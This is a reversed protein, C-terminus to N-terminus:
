QGLQMSRRAASDLASGILGKFGANALTGIAHETTGGPTQVEQCIQSVTKGQARILATTGSLLQLAVLAAQERDLGSRLGYDQLAEAFYAVLAPGGGALATGTDIQWEEEVRLSIGIADFIQRAEELLASSSSQPAYYMTVGQSVESPTNPIARVIADHGLFRVLSAHTIGAMVSIVPGCHRTLAPNLTLANEFQQPPVALVVCDESSLEDLKPAVKYGLKQWSRARQSDTEIVRLNASSNQNKKLARLIAGGMHGAGLVHINKM